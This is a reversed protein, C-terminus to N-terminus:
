NMFRVFKARGSPSGALVKYHVYKLFVIKHREQSTKLTGVGRFVIYCFTNSLVVSDAGRMEPQWPALCAEGCKYPTTPHPLSAWFPSPVDGHRFLTVNIDRVHGPPRTAEGTM